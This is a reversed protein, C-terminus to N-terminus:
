PWTGGGRARVAALKGTRRWGVLKGPAVVYKSTPRQNGGPLLREGAFAGVGEFGHADADAPMCHDAFWVCPRVEGAALPAGGAVCTEETELCACQAAPYFGSATKNTRWSVTKAGVENVVALPVAQHALHHVRPDGWLVSLMAALGMFCGPNVDRVYYKGACRNANRNQCAAGLVRVFGARRNAPHMAAMWSNVRRAVAAPTTVAGDVSVDNRAFRRAFFLGIGPVSILPGDPTWKPPEGAAPQAGVRVRNLVQAYNM